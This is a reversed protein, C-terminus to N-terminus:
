QAPLGFLLEDFVLMPEVAHRVMILQRPQRVPVIQGRKQRVRDALGARRARLEADHEEVQVAELVDVIGAAVFRAVLQELFHRGPQTGDDALGVHDDAHAAVLEDHHEAVDFGVIFHSPAPRMM